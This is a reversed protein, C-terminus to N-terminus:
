ISEPVPISNVMNAKNHAYALCFELAAEKLGDCVRDADGTKGIGDELSLAAMSKCYLQHARNASSAECLAAANAADYGVAPTTINGIGEFCTRILEKSFGSSECYAGLARFTEVAGDGKLLARHWWPPLEWVCMKQYKADLSVCPEYMERSHPVADRWEDPGLMVRQNYEMFVGWYCWNTKIGGSLSDCALLAADLEDKSYGLTAIIGHGLGHLCARPVEGPTNICADYVTSLSSLGFQAITRAIVEHFCGYIFRADCATIGQLGEADFLADGFVHALVHQREAPISAMEASFTRYADSAGYREISHRFYQEAEERPATAYDIRAHKMNSAAFALMSIGIVWLLTVFVPRM